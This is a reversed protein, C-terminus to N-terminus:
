YEGTVTTIKLVYFYKLPGCKLTPDPDPDGAGFGHLLKVYPSGSTIGNIRITDRRVFVLVFVFFLSCTFFIWNKRTRITTSIM